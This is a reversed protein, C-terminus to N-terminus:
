DGLTFSDASPTSSVGSFEIVLRFEDTEGTLGEVERVGNDGGLVIPEATRVTGDDERTEVTVTISGGSRQADYGLRLDNLDLDDTTDKWDTTLSGQRLGGGNALAQVESEGLARDYIRVEDVDGEWYLDQARGVELYEIGALEEGLPTASDSDEISQEVGDVYLAVREGDEWAMTVHQWDTSLSESDYEYGYATGDGPGTRVASTFIPDFSCGFIGFRCSYSGYRLSLERDYGSYLGSDLLGSYPNSEDPKVWMSITVADANQLYTSQPNGDVLTQDGDFRYATGDVGPVGRQLGNGDVEFEYNTGGAYDCADGPEEDCEDADTENLPLWVQLGNTPVSDAEAGPDLGVVDDPHVVNTEASAADWDATDKWTVTDGGDLSFADFKTVYIEDGLRYRVAVRTPFDASPVDNGDERLETLYVTLNEGPYVVPNSGSGAGGDTDVDVILGDEPITAGGSFDVYGDGYGIDDVSDETVSTPVDEGVEFVIENELDGGEEIGDVVSTSVQPDYGLTTVEVPQDWTNNLSFWVGADDGNGDGDFTGEDVLVLGSVPVQRSVTDTEGEDDTVELTVLYSGPTDYTQTATPGTVTRNGGTPLEFRWEYSEIVGDLDATDNVFAIPDGATPNGPAFVFGAVPDTNVVVGPGSPGGSGGGLGVTSGVALDRVPLRDGDGEGAVRVVLEGGVRDFAVASRNALPQVVTVGPSDATLVLCSDSDTTGTECATGTALDVTYARDVVREPLDVRVSTNGGGRSLADAAAVDDALRAGLSELEARTAKETEGQLFGSMSTILLGILLAGMAIALVHTVASSVAREDTAFRVLPARRDSM